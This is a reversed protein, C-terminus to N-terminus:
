RVMFICFEVIKNAVIKITNVGWGYYVYMYIYVYIMYVYQQEYM